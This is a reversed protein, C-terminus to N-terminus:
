VPVPSPTTPGAVGVLGDLLEQVRGHLVETLARTEEKKGNRRRVEVPEGFVLTARKAGRVGATPAGLVDEEFKDLIEGQHELSPLGSRYDHVYSFLQVVLELEDMDEDCCRRQPDAPPLGERLEIVQHRLQTARGPVDSEPASPRYRDELRRLIAENLAAIRDPIEGAQVAGLHELERLSLLAHAFCALRAPLPLDPRPRWLIKRELTEMLRLLQPTPDDLYQYHIAAPICVVPRGARKAAALAIAAAGPRFPAVWSENHYVEGEAFVVLPHAGTQVVEVAQRFARFDNSERDISFCGHRQLIRAGLWGLLRFVQWGVLYQFPRGLEDAAFLMVFADGHGAHKPTILVGHGQELARRVHELGRVEVRCLGTTRRAWWIRPRRIVRIFRPWLLSEWRRPPTGYPLHDM